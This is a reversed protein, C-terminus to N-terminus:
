QIKATGIPTALLVALLVVQDKNNVEALDCRRLSAWM